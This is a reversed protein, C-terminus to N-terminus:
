YIELIAVYSGSGAFYSKSVLDGVVLYDRVPYEDHVHSVGRPAFRATGSNRASQM